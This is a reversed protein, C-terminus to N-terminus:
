AYAQFTPERIVGAEAYRAIAQLGGRSEEGGSALELRAQAAMRAAKAAVKRDQGSPELPALAAQQITNAKQLTAQPDGPIPSTDIGVEGGVAYSRGDPGRQYTFSAGRTVYQGGAALHALEHARVERDRQKLQELERLQEASPTTSSGEESRTGSQDTAAVSGSQETTAPTAEASGATAASPSGVALSAIWASLPTSSVASLSM